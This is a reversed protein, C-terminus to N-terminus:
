DENLFGIWLYSGDSYAAYGNKIFPNRGNLGVPLYVGDYVLAYFVGKYVSIDLRGREQTDASIDMSPTGNKEFDEISIIKYWDFLENM